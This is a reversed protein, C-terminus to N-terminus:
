SLSCPCCFFDYPNPCNTGIGLALFSPLLSRLGQIVTFSAILVWPQWSWHEQFFIGEKACHSVLLNGAGQLCVWPTQSQSVKQDPIGLGADSMPSSYSSLSLWCALSGGFCDDSSPPSCASMNYVWSYTLLSELFPPVQVLDAPRVQEQGWPCLIVYCFKKGLAFCFFPPKHLDRISM